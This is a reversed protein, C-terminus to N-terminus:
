MLQQVASLNQSSFPVTSYNESIDDAQSGTPAEAMVIVQNGPAFITTSLGVDDTRAHRSGAVVLHSVTISSGPPSGKVTQSVNYTVDQRAEAFGSWVPPAADVSQITGVFILAAAQAIQQIRAQNANLNANDFLGAPGGGGAPCGVFAVMTAACLGLAIVVSQKM